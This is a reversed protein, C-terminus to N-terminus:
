ERMPFVLAVRWTLTPVKALAAAKDFPDADRHVKEATVLRDRLEATGFQLLETLQNLGSKQYEEHLFSVGPERKVEPNKINWNQALASASVAALFLTSYVINKM